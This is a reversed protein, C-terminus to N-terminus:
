YQNFSISTSFCVASLDSPYAASVAAITSSNSETLYRRIQGETLCHSHRLFPLSFYVTQVYELFEDDTRSSKDSRDEQCPVVLSSLIRVHYKIDFPFLNQSLLDFNLSHSMTSQRELTLARERMMVTVLSSPFRDLVLCMLM